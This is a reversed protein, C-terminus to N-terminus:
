CHVPPLADSVMVSGQQPASHIWMTRRGAPWGPRPQRVQLVARAGKSLCAYLSEFFRRLRKRPDNKSTDQWSSPAPLSHPPLM